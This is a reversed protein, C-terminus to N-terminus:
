APNSSFDIQLRSIFAPIENQAHLTLLSSIRSRLIIMLNAESPKGKSPTRQYRLFPAFRSLPFEVSLTQLVGMAVSCMLAYMETARVTKLIRTREPAAVVASLPDPADKRRFRNLRPTAKTWFRYSFGGLQQKFERFMSEIRFRYGYLRIIASPHLNLNTSVLIVRSGDCEVLVFRLRQYLGQGWLLDVAYYRVSQKKGYLNIKKTRFSAKETEFLDALKVKEGKVPKRGRQGPKGPLPTRYAVTSLKMRSVMDVKRRNAANQANLEKFAPVTPFYRDLLYFSDKQFAQAAQCGDKIMEVVHSEGSIASGEWDKTAQLGDHIRASLPVCSLRKESGILVGACGWFHGHIYEPKSQTESEQALKKVGPMRRGEKSQKTGDGILVCRGAKEFLPFQESVIEAWKSRVRELNWADSRFFHLMSEYVEPRLSLDRIVSTLGLRDSRVMLGIIIVAYWGYAAVRSFLPKFGSLIEEIRNWM